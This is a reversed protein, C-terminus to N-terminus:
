LKHPNFLKFKYKIKIHLQSRHDSYLYVILQNLRTSFTYNAIRMASRVQNTFYHMIGKFHKLCLLLM